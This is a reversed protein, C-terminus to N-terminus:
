RLALPSDMEQRQGSVVIEPVVFVACSRDTCTRV